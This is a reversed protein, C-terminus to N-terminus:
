AGIALLRRRELHDWVELARAFAAAAEPMAAAPIHNPPPSIRLASEDGDRLRLALQINGGVFHQKTRWYSVASPDCPLSLAACILALMRQPDAAFDDFKVVIKAGTNHFHRLLVDYTDAWLEFYRRQGKATAFAPHRACHSHWNAIPHRFLVIADNQLHPDLKLVHHHSKDSTVIIDAGYAASLTAYFDVNPDALRRRLQDTVVPCDPGCCMCQEYGDPSPPLEESSRKRRKEVLWHSEGVNAIGPLSGLVLGLLTSGCFSVGTIVVHRPVASRPRPGPGRAPIGPHYEDLGLRLACRMQAEMLQAPAIDDAKQGVLMECLALAEQWREGRMTLRALRWIVGPAVHPLASTAAAALEPWREAQALCNCRAAHAEAHDPQEILVQGWMALAADDNLQKSSLRACKVLAELGESARAANPSDADLTSLRKVCKAQWRRATEDGPVRGLVATWADRARTWVRRPDHEADIM